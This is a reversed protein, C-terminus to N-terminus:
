QITSGVSAVPIFGFPNSPGLGVFSSIMDILYPTMWFSRQGFIACNQSGVQRCNVHTSMLVLVQSIDVNVNLVSGGQVQM